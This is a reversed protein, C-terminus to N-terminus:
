FLLKVLEVYERPEKRLWIPVAIAKELMTKTKQSYEIQKKDLAHEWFATCHWEMADPLNKTGFGKDNLIAIYKEKDKKSETFFIFTDYIPSSGNPIKRTKVTSPINEIIAQYRMKNENLIYNLRGMQVKGVTAQIETMRYNFGFISKSGIM